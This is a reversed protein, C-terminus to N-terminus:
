VFARLNLLRPSSRGASALGREWGLEGLPAVKSVTFSKEQEILARGPGVVNYVLTVEDGPGAGLDEAVWGSLIIEDAAM